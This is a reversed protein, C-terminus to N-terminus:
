DPIQYQGLTSKNVSMIAGAIKEPVEEQLFHGADVRHFRAARMTDRVKQMHSGLIPDKVGWVVEIPGDFGRCFKEVVRFYNQSEHGDTFPVMRSYYLAATWKKRLEFPKRYPKARSGGLSAREYQVNHLSYLPFRFLRFLIDSIVPIHALRHFATAKKPAAVATNLVVIGKFKSRCSDAAVFGLPGGWDQVVLIANDLDNQDIFETLYRAHNRMSFDDTSLDDSFGLNMLDPAFVEFESPNLRSM